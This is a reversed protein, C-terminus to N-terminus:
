AAVEHAPRPTRELPRAVRGHEEICHRNLDIARDVPFTQGCTCSIRLLRIPVSKPKAVSPSRPPVVWPVDYGHTRATKIRQRASDIVYGFHKAVEEPMNRGQEHAWRAVAAVEALTAKRPRSM